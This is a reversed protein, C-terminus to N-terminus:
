DKDSLRSVIEEASRELRAQEAVITKSSNDIMIGSGQIYGSAQGFLQLVGSRERVSCESSEQLLRGIADLYDDKDSSHNLGLDLKSSCWQEIDYMMGKITEIYELRETPYGINKLKRVKELENLVLRYNRCEQLESRYEERTSEEIVIDTNYLLEAYDDYSLSALELFHGLLAKRKFDERTIREMM